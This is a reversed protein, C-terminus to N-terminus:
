PEIEQAYGLIKMLGICEAKTLKTAVLEPNEISSYDGAWRWATLSWLWPAWWLRRPAVAYIYSEIPLMYMSGSILKRM